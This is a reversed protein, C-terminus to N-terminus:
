LLGEVRLREIAEVARDEWRNRGAFAKRAAARAKSDETIARPVTDAFGAADRAACVYAGHRVCERLWTSVVPKGMALYMYMKVPNIGDGMEGAIFPIIGIDFAACYRHGEEYTVAGPMVINQLSRLPALRAEQDGNVRGVLAFTYEPSRLAAARLAEVDVRWDYTGLCGVIPRPRGRLPEPLADPSNAVALLTDRACANPLLCTKRNVGVM